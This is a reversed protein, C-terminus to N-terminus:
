LVGGFFNDYNRIHESIEFKSIKEKNEAIHSDEFDRYGDEKGFDGIICHEILCDSAMGANSSVIHTGAAPAEFLCQPGGEYRSTSAYLDCASYMMNLEDLEPMERYTYYIEAEKLRNIVYQRRWGGLLVHLRKECTRDLMELYDCLIDPGKELKPTVLDSGETDRQFSGIVYEDDSIGLSSRYELVSNSEPLSWLKKNWWYGIKTVPKDTHKSILEYTQQCPVIYQDVIQDRMRFKVLRDDVFKEPVEHHLSCVVKKARLVDVPVQDWCWPAALWVIDCDFPVTRADHSSYECFEAGIRDVIWNERPVLVFIRKLRGEWGIMLTTMNRRNM